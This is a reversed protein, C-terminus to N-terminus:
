CLAMEIIIAEDNTFLNVLDLYNSVASVEIEPRGLANLLKNLPYCKNHVFYLVDQIVGKNLCFSSLYCKLHLSNHVIFQYYISGDNYRSLSTKKVIHFDKNSRYTIEYFSGDYNFVVSAVDGEKYSIMLVTFLRKNEVTVKQFLVTMTKNTFKLTTSKAPMITKDFHYGHMEMFSCFAEKDMHFLLNNNVLRDASLLSDLSPIFARHDTIMNNPLYNENM